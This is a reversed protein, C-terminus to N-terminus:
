AALRDARHSSLLVTPEAERSWSSSGWVLLAGVLPQPPADVCKRVYQVIRADIAMCNDMTSPVRADITRPSFAMEDDYILSILNNSKVGRHTTDVNM